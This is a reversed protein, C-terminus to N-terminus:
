QIFELGLLKTYVCVLINKFNMSFKKFFDVKEWIELLYLYLFTTKQVQEALKRCCEALLPENSDFEPGPFPTLTLAPDRRFDAM